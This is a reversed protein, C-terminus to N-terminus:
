TIMDNEHHPIKGAHLKAALISGSRDISCTRLYPLVHRCLITAGYITCSDPHTNRYHMTMRHHLHNTRYNYLKAQVTDEDSGERGGREGLGLSLSDYSDRLVVSLVPTYWYAHTNAYTNAYTYMDMHSRKFLGSHSPLGSMILNMLWVLWFSECCFDAMKAVKSQRWWDYLSLSEDM